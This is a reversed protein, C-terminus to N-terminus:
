NSMDKAALRQLEDELVAELDLTKDGEDCEIRELVAAALLQAARRKGILSGDSMILRFKYPTTIYNLTQERGELLITMGAQRLTAIASNAFHIVEGQIQEAVSNGSSVFFPVTHM